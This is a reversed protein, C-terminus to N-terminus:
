SNPDCYRLTHKEAKALVRQAQANLQQKDEITLTKATVAIVPIHQWETNKRIEALFELGDMEPMMLDLLIIDPAKEKMLTLGILGNEATRAKWGQKEINREFLERTAAEDELILVDCDKENEITIFSKIANILKKREIPKTLYDSAGLSIGRAKDDVMSLMVVPIHSVEADEKLETLVAWGDLEPMMVDLIIIDPQLKRAQELGIQGNAATILQLGERQLQRILLDHVTLDDDIVLVTPADADIIGIENTSTDIQTQMAKQAVSGQAKEVIMPIRVLFTSGEGEVSTVIIEGGMMEAFHRSIPLGLGTGGFKRTTTEDAQTFQDFVREIQSQSMGIGTDKVVIALWDSDQQTSKNASLTVTGDKTFKSANSMLNTVLQRLKTRDNVIVLNQVDDIEVELKNNNKEVLPQVSIVVEDILDEMLIEELDLETKGAEIKSIDLIDNIISLLHVGATRIKQLDPTIEEYDYEDAEEELMESYGIIANLPTRLEHSMNALFLSKTRSADEAAELATSLEETRQFVTDELNETLNQLATNTTALESSQEELSAKASRGAGIFYFVIFYTTTLPALFNMVFFAHIGYQPMGVDYNSLVTGDLIASLIVLGVFAFFWIRAQKVNESVVLAVIPSLISWLMVAGSEAFGGISWQLFTPVLLILLLQGLLLTNYDKNRLYIQLNAFSLVVYGWPWISVEVVGLLMYILGWVLGGMSTATAMVLLIARNLRKEETEDPQAPPYIFQAIRDINSLMVTDGTVMLGLRTTLNYDNINTYIVKKPIWCAM